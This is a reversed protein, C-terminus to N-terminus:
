LYRVVVCEHLSGCAQWRVQLACVQVSLEDVPFSVGPYTDRWCQRCIVDDDSMITQVCHLVCLMICRVSSLSSMLGCWM